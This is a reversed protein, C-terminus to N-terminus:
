ITTLSTIKTIIRNYKCMNNLNIMNLNLKEYTSKSYYKKQWYYTIGTDLINSKDKM